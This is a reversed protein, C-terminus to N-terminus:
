QGSNMNYLEKVQLIDQDKYPFAEMPNLPVKKESDIHILTNAAFDCVRKTIKNPGIEFSLAPSRDNLLPLVKAIWSRNNLYIVIDLADMKETSRGWMLSEEIHRVAKEDGLKACASLLSKAVDKGEDNGIIKKLKDIDDRKGINGIAKTLYPITAWEEKPFCRKEKEIEAVLDESKGVTKLLLIGEAAIARHSAIPDNLAVLYWAYCWPQGIEELFCLAVNRVNPNTSKVYKGVFPYEKKEITKVVEPLLLESDGNSLMKEIALNDMTKGKAHYCSCLLAAFWFLFIIIKGM